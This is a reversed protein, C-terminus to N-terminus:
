NKYKIDSLDILRWGYDGGWAENLIKATKPNNKTNIARSDMNVYDNIWVGRLRLYGQVYRYCQYAYSKLNSEEYHLWIDKVRFHIPHRDNKLIKDIYERYEPPM